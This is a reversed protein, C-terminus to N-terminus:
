PRFVVLKGNKLGFAHWVAEGNKRHDEDPYVDVTRDLTEM